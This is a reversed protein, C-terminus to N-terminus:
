WIVTELGDGIISDTLCGAISEPVDLSSGIGVTLRIVLRFWACAVKSCQEVFSDFDQCLLGPLDDGGLEGM